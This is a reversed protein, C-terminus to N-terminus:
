EWCWYDLAKFPLLWAISCLKERSSTRTPLPQSNMFGYSHRRVIPEKTQEVQLDGQNKSRSKLFNGGGGGDCNTMHKGDEIPLYQM